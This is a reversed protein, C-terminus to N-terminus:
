KKQLFARRLTDLVDIMKQLDDSSFQSFFVDPHDGAEEVAAQEVEAEISAQLRAIIEANMSRHNKKALVAIRERMGEPFRLLLKDVNDSPYTPRAM